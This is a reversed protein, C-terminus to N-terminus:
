QVVVRGTEEPGAPTRVRVYYVGGPYGSLDLPLSLNTNKTTAEVSTEELALGNADFVTIVWNGKRTQGEVQPATFSVVVKGRTPNPSIELKLSGNEVLAKTEKPGELVAELHTVCSPFRSPYVQVNYTGNCLGDFVFSDTINSQYIDREGSVTSIFLITFPGATGNAVVTFSGNCSTSTENSVIAEIGIEASASFSLALLFSISLIIKPLHM